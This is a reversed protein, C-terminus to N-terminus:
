RKHAAKWAENGMALAPHFPKPTGMQRTYSDVNLGRKFPLVMFAAWAGLVSGFTRKNRPTAAARKVVTECSEPQSGTVEFVDNTPAGFEFAGQSHEELYIGFQATTFDDYNGDALVAKHLMFLPIPLLTVKRGLVRGMITVMERVTLLTPGTPRYTKGAHLEPKMLCHAAVRAIDEVSPPADRADPNGAFPYLGQQAAYNMLYVYPLDAFFGPMVCSHSIGHAKLSFFLEDILAHHRSQLSPSRKSGLWQSIGVIHEMGAARAGAALAVAGQLAYASIPPVYLARKAGKCAEAMSDADTLDGIFVTAGASELAGSRADKKRIVARVPYGAACLQRVVASRIRGSAGTVLVLPKATPTTASM